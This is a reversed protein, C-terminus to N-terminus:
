KKSKKSKNKKTMAHQMAILGLVATAGSLGTPFLINKVSGGKKNKITQYYEKTESAKKYRNNENMERNNGNNLLFAKKLINLFAGGKQEMRKELKKDSLLTKKSFPLKVNRKNM